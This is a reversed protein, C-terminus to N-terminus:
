VTNHFQGKDLICLEWIGARIQSVSILGETKQKTKCTHLTKETNEIHYM